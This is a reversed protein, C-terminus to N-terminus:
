GVLAFVFDITMESPLLVYGVDGIRKMVRNGLSGQGVGRQQFRVGGLGYSVVSGVDYAEAVISVYQRPFSPVLDITMKIVPSM